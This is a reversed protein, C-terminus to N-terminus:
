ATETEKRASLHATTIASVSLVASLLQNNAAIVAADSSSNLATLMATMGIILQHAVDAPITGATQPGSLYRAMQAFLAQVEEATTATAPDAAASQDIAALLASSDARKSTSLGLLYDTSVNFYTAINVLMEYPPERNNEYGSAMGNSFHLAAALDTQKMGADNRLKRLRKSFTDM